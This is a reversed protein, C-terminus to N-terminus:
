HDSYHRGTEFNAFEMLSRNMKEHVGEKQNNRNLKFNLLAQAQETQIGKNM